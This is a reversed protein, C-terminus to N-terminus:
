LFIRRREKMGKRRRDCIGEAPLPMSGRRLTNKRGDIRGSEPARLDRSMGRVTRGDEFIAQCPRISDSYNLNFERDSKKRFRICVEEKSELDFKEIHGSSEM